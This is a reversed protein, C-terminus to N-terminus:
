HIRMDTRREAMIAPAEREILDAVATAMDEQDAKRRLYLERRHTRYKFDSVAWGILVGAFFAAASALFFVDM